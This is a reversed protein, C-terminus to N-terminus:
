ERVVSVETVGYRLFLPLLEASLREGSVALPIAPPCSVTPQGLIRGVAKHVAVTEQPSLMAERITLARPLPLLCLSPEKATEKKTWLAAEERYLSAIRLFDEPRNEPTLMLVVASLDAFEPEM